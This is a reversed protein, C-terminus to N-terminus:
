NVSKMPKELISKDLNYFDCLYQLCAEKSDKFFAIYDSQSPKGFAYYFNGNSSGVFARIKTKSRLLIYNGKTAFNPNPFLDNATVM